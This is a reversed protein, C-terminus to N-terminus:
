GGAADGGRHNGGCPRRDPRPGPGRLAGGRTPGCSLGFGSWPASMRSTSPPGCTTPVAPAAGPPKWWRGCRRRRSTSTSGVKTGPVSFADADGAEVAARADNLMRRRRIDAIRTGLEHVAERDTELGSEHWFREAAAEDGALLLSNLRTLKLQREFRDSAPRQEGLPPRPADWDAPQRPSLRQDLQGM